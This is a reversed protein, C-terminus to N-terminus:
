MCICFKEAEEQVVFVEYEPVVNVLLDVLVGCIKMIIRNGDKDMEQVETQIFANLIDCTAVDREEAAEIVSTSKSDPEFSRRKGYLKESHEWKRLPPGQDIWREKREPFDLVGDSAAV